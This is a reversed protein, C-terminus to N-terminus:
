VGGGGRAPLTFAAISIPETEIPNQPLLKSQVKVALVLDQRMKEHKVGRCTLRANEIMLALQQAYAQILEKDGSSYLNQGIPPGLLLLGIIDDKTRLSFALRM